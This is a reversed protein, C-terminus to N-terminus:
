DLHVLLSEILLVIPKIRVCAITTEKPPPHQNKTAQSTSWAKLFSPKSSPAGCTPGQLSSVWAQPKAGMSTPSLVMSLNRCTISSSSLAHQSSESVDFIM